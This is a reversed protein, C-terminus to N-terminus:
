PKVECSLAARVDELSPFSYVIQYGDEDEEIVLQGLVERLRAIEADKESLLIMADVISLKMAEGRRFSRSGRMSRMGEASVRTSM